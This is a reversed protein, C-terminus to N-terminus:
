ITWPTLLTALSPHGHYFAPVVLFHILQLKHIFTLTHYKLQLKKSINAEKKTIRVHCKGLHAIKPAMEM